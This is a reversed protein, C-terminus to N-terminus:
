GLVLFPSFVSTSAACVGGFFSLNPAQRRLELRISVSLEQTNHTYNGERSGKARGTGAPRSAPKTLFSISAPSVILSEFARDRDM